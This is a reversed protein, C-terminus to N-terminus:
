ARAANEELMAAVRAGFAKTGLSGSIDRTRSKPDAIARDLASEIAAAAAHLRNDQRRDGLWALLMAASGILTLNGALTSSMALALWAQQADPLSGIKGRLLLVAPVNSILNSLVLSATSLRATGGEILPSVTRGGHTTWAGFEETLSRSWVVKGDTSLATLDNCAGFV